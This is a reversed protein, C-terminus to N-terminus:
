HSFNGYGGFEGLTHKVGGDEDGFNDLAETLERLDGHEIIRPTEYTLETDRQEEV